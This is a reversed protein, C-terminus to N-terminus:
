RTQEVWGDRGKGRAETQREEEVKLRHVAMILQIQLHDEQVSLYVLVCAVWICVM